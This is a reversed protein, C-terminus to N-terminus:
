HCNKQLFKKLIVIQGLHYYTHEIIGQINAYFTGYKADLFSEHWQKEPLNKILIECKEAKKLVNNKLNQWDAENQIEPHQFSFKDRITLKHDEIVDIIGNLFYGIHFTLAGITNVDEIQTTAMTFDVDALVDKVNRETWNESSFANKFHHALLQSNMFYENKLSQNEDFNVM